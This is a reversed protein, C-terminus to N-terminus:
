AFKGRLAYRKEGAEVIQWPPPFSNGKSKIEIVQGKFVKHLCLQFLYEPDPVEGGGAHAREQENRLENHAEERLHRYNKYAGQYLSSKVSDEEDPLVIFDGGFLSNYAGTFAGDADIRVTFRGWRGDATIRVGLMEGSFSSSPKEISIVNGRFYIESPNFAHNESLSGHRMLEKIAESNVSFEIKFTGKIKMKDERSRRELRSELPPTIAQSM